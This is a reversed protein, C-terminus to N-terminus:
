IVHLYLCTHTDDYNIKNKEKAEAARGFGAQISGDEEGHLLSVPKWHRPAHEDDDEGEEHDRALDASHQVKLVGHCM